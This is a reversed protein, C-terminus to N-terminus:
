AVVEKQSFAKNLLSQRLTDVYDKESKIQLKLSEIEAFVIDLKNIIEIQKELSPVPIEISSIQDKNISDFVAGTNGSIEPQKHLLFYFLYNKDVLKKARIAALGRGICIQQTSFNIPGVPARVSMLIDGPEALKTIKTTWTTAEGLFKEGFEKKGQYFPTGNGISNYYIGEPSQGAIVEAVTGLPVLNTSIIEDESNSSSGNDEATSSFASSLLSQLLQNAKEKSLGLNVELLDIEVFASDLKEVIEHQKELSPLLLKVNSLKEITLTDVTAGNGRDLQDFFLDSKLWYDIFRSDVEAEKHLWLVSADKFYFRDRENVIYTNGITGIATVMIDGPVPVGYKASLDKFHEESVFLENDAFGTKSLRTIERGRYFPVGADKWDSKLVRKSSGVRFLDSLKVLKM